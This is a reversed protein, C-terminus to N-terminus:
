EEDDLKQQMAMRQAWLFHVFIAIGLVLSAITLLKDRMSLHAFRLGFEALDRGSGLGGEPVLRTAIAWLVGGWLIFVAWLEIVFWLVRRKPVGSSRMRAVM